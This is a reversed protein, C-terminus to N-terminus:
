IKDVTAFEPHRKLFRRLKRDNYLLELGKPGMAILKEVPISGIKRLTKKSSYGRNDLKKEQYNKELYPDLKSVVVLEVKDKKEDITLREM